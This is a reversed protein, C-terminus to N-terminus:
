NIIFKIKRLHKENFFIKKKKEIIISNLNYFNKIKVILFIKLILNKKKYGNFVFNFFLFSFKIM